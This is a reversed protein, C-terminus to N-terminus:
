TQEAATDIISRDTVEGVHLVLGVPNPEVATSTSDETEPVIGAEDQLLISVNTNM